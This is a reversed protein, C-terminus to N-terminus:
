TISARPGTTKITSTWAGIILQTNLKAIVPNYTGVGTLVAPGSINLTGNSDAITLASDVLVEIDLEVSSPFAPLAAAAAALIVKYKPKTVGSAFAFTIGTLDSTGTFLFTMSNPLTHVAGATHATSPPTWIAGNPISIATDDVTSLTASTNRQYITSVGASFGDSIGAVFITATSLITLLKSKKNKIIRM